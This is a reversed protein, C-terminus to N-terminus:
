IEVFIDEEKMKVKYIKLPTKAQPAKVEGTEIDFQAGHCYCVIYHDKIYGGALPCQIHICLGDFAYYKDKINAIAIIKNGIKIEKIKGNELDAKKAAKIFKNM